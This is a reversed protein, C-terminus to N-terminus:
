AEPSPLAKALNNRARTRLSNVRFLAGAIVQTIAHLEDLSLVGAIRLGLAAFAPALARRLTRAITGIRM